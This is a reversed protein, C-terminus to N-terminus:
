RSGIAALGAPVAKALAVEGAARGLDSPSTVPAATLLRFMDSRAGVMRGAEKMGLLRLSADDGASARASALRLITDQQAPSLAGDPPISRAVLSDLAAVAGHWDGAASLITARLDDAADTDIGSLIAAAGGPDKAKAHIRADIMGREASLPAPLDAATTNALAAAAGAADGDELRLKALRAGLTARGVGEPAAAIMREIIPGARKPLDLASLKDVLLPGVLPEDAHGVAEANEEALAVLEMPPLKEADPGHLLDSMMSTLQANIVPATEPFLQLTERLMAFAPHWQGAKARLSAVRLRLKQERDDGRWDLFQRELADAAQAPGIAGSSLRLLTARTAARASALRDRGVALADYLTLADGTKGTAELRMARALTLLPEDPRKKLLADAADGAGGMAMTEAALPLLRNRLAAPYSLVLGVTTAFVPAAEPSGPRMMAARVARWLAIEDTGNLRPDMLGDSEAPRGSLLSAIGTLGAIDPDDASRPDESAALGLLSQAEAGLGLSLMTQAARKRPVLKSQAPARGQDGAELQLQRLLTAPPQDQFDFRRTLVSADELARASDPAPAMPAGTELAFGEQVARLQTRDSLPEVVVGQWSKRVSFEPVRYAVLVGAGSQHMTGVLLNQGTNPDPVVVVQGPAPTPFLLRAEKTVPVLPAATSPKDAVTVSWGTKQREMRLDRGPPAKLRLLTAQPLLQVVAGALMPDDGLAALDLPRREDFVIWAEDGHRFAAASVTLGFPLLAASGTGGPPLPMRSAALAVPEAQPAPAASDTAPSSAAPAAAADPSHEAPRDATQTPAASPAVQIVPVVPAPVAISGPTIVRPLDAPPSAAAHSPAATASNPQAPSGPTTVTPLAPMPPAVAKAHEAPPTAAHDAPKVATAASSAPPVAAQSPLPPAAEKAHEAPAPEAPKAAVHPPAKAARAAPKDKEPDLADVVVRNGLRMTHLRAGPAMTVVAQDPGGAVSVINRVAGEIAPVDGAGPFHLTVADGKRDVKFDRPSAFEFVVRGYGEHTAMRVDTTEAALAPGAAMMLALPLLLRM